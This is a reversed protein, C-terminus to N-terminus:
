SLEDTAQDCYNASVPPERYNSQDHLRGYQSVQLTDSGSVKLQVVCQVSACPFLSVRKGRAGQVANTRNRQELSMTGMGHCNLLECVVLRGEYM